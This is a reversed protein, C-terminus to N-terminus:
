CASKRDDVDRLGGGTLEVVQCGARTLFDRDHSAVVLAAEAPLEALSALLQSRGASDLAATPEDLLILPRGSRLVLGLALRRRQGSSLDHPNRRAFDPALGVSSLFEAVPGALAPDVAIEAAVTSRTFLYEPFQPALLALGHDLDLHGRAYISRGCLQVRGRDPRRAGACVALLTSKGCGNPGCIGWREGASVRWDVPGFGAGVLFDCGVGQLVLLPPGSVAVSALPRKPRPGPQNDDLLAMVRSDTLLDRPAGRAVMRGNELVLLEDARAAERRDCTATILAGGSQRRWHDLRDLVWEAQVPDQLSTAEDCCLVRPNQALVVALLLRQKQGASLLRPDMAAMGALGFDRCIAEVKLDPHGLAIEQEVSAAVLQDDPDQLLITATNALPSEDGALYKLLSSKGSGNAGLVALWRGAIVDLDVGRLIAQLGAPGQRDLSWNRWSLLCSGTGM